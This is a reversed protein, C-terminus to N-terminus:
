RGNRYALRRGSSDVVEVYQNASNKVTIQGSSGVSFIVNGDVVDKLAAAGSTVMITDVSSDYDEIVNKGDSSTFVFTDAGDGGWLTDNDAGGWLTDDGAQGYIKDNGKGGYISDNGDGGYISDKGAGGDITDDEETAVIKNANDNGVINLDHTVASATITKLSDEYDSYQTPTFNTSTYKSSLTASTGADNYTVFKEIIHHEEGDADIYTVDQDAAGKVTIKGKGVTFVVDSKGVEYSVTGSTISIKDGDEESYDLITDKGDGNAYVFIDSGAGGYLKDNGKGGSLLDNGAGGNLSDNGAGGYISDAGAGGSITDAQGTGIINNAKKNGGIVLDQTVASADIGILKDKYQSYETQTFSDDTYGATLTASNNKYVVTRLGVVGATGDANVYSVYDQKDVVDKVTIKGKGVTFVVDSSGIDIASITGSAISIKDGVVYDTITTNGASHVFTDAGDGGTLTDKGAGGDLVDAGAGGNISDNGAEGYIKDNGAGGALTDNGDGANITDAGNGASINDDQGSGIIKNALKNGVIKLDHEVASADITKLTSAYDSYETSTFADDTYAATLTVSTGDGNYNTPEVGGITHQVGDADIWVLEKKAANQVTLKNNGVTFVLNNKSTTIKPTGATIRIKDGEAYDTIKDNGSGDYVFVDSGAGGTLIDNGDGGFISDNGKGGSLSDNGDGGILTDKGDGGDITDDEDTGIIKNAQKNAVIKLDHTVASANINKLTGAFDEFESVIFEDKGYNEKLTATTGKINVPYYHRDGNADIYTVIKNGANNLTISGSGITFVVNGKSDTSVKSIDGRTIQIVDGEEYDTIVDKGDGEAYIFYDEGAGGALSDNGEGGVISDNGDNGGVTDNGGLAQIYYEDRDDSAFFKNAKNDLRVDMTM